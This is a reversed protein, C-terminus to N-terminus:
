ASDNFQVGENTLGATTLRCLTTLTQHSFFGTPHAPIVASLLRLYERFYLIIVYIQNLIFRHQSNFHPLCYQKTNFFHSTTPKYFHTHWHCSTPKQVVPRRLQLCLIAHLRFIVRKTAPIISYTQSLKLKYIQPKYQVRKDNRWIFQLYLIRYREYYVSLVTDVGNRNTFFIRFGSLM